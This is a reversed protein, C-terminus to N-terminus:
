NGQEKCKKTYLKKRWFYDLCSVNSLINLPLVVLLSSFVLLIIHYHFFIWVVFVSGVTQLLGAACTVALLYFLPFSFTMKRNDEM